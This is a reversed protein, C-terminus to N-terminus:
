KKEFRLLIACEFRDSFAVTAGDGKRFSVDFETMETANVNYYSLVSPSTCICTKPKKTEPDITTPSPITASVAFLIKQEVGNLLTSQVINSMLYLVGLDGAGEHNCLVNQVTVKWLGITLYLATPMKFRIRGNFRSFEANKAKTDFYLQFM